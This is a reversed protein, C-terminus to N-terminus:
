SQSGQVVVGYEAETLHLDGCISLYYKDLDSYQDGGSVAELEDDSLRHGVKDLNKLFEDESKANEVIKKIEESM